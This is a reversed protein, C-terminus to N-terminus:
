HFRHELLFLVESEFFYKLGDEVNSKWIQQLCVDIINEPNAQSNSYRQQLEPIRFIGQLCANVWCSGRFNKLGFMKKKHM